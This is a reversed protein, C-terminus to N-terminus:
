PIKNYAEVLTVILDIAHEILTLAINSYYFIKFASIRKYENKQEHREVSTLRKDLKVVTKILQIQTENKM